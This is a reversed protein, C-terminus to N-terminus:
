SNNMFVNVENLYCKLFTKISPLRLGKGKRPLSDSILDIQLFFKFDQLKFISMDRCRPIGGYRVRQTRCISRGDLPVVPVCKPIKKCKERCSRFSVYHGTWSGVGPVSFSVHQKQQRLVVVSVSSVVTQTVGRVESKWVSLSEM